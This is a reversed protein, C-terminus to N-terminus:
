ERRSLLQVLYPSNTVGPAVALRSRMLDQNPQITGQLEKCRIWTMLLRGVGMYDAFTGEPTTFTLQYRGTPGKPLRYGETFVYPHLEGFQLTANGVRKM